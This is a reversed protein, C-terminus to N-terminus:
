LTDYPLKNNAVQREAQDFELLRKIMSITGFFFIAGPIQGIAVQAYQTVIMAFLAAAIAAIYTKYEPNKIRFYYDICQYLIM